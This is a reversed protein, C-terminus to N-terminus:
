YFDHEMVILDIAEDPFPKHKCGFGGFTENRVKDSFMLYERHEVKTFPSKNHYSM